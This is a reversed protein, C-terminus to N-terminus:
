VESEISENRRCKVWVFALHLDYSILIIQHAEIKLSYSGCIWILSWIIVLKRM